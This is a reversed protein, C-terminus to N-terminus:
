KVIEKMIARKVAEESLEQGIGPLEPVTYRGKVPQYDYVGIARNEPNLSNIHHEHIIFNPIATELHLAVAKSIPSGCVHAQVSVDYIHAMDCIKKGESVGGCNGLDPQIVDLARMELFPRYGWRTYIREGAALPFNVSDRVEKMMLPNLPMVPEEYLFIGLEEIARGIQVAASVDTGCHMEVIIDVDPGVANRIAALRDHCMAVQKHSLIKTFDAGGMRKEDFFAPDVKVCDYGEGVARLACEAYEEPTALPTWREGWGFQIQSAYCRLNDRTKGGLLKYLPVGFAKAKIDWLATDIASMGASVMTGGGAGWFTKKQMTDWIGETNIPDAGLVLQSLDKVMGFGATGGVGLSVGAEGLGSIGEDTNIRCVIPKDTWTRQGPVKLLTVEFRYIEVSVIKM